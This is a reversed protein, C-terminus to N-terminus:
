KPGTTREAQILCKVASSQCRRNPFCEGNGANDVKILGRGFLPAQEFKFSLNSQPVASGCQPVHGLLPARAGTFPDLAGPMLRTWLKYPGSAFPPCLPSAAMPCDLGRLWSWALWATWGVTTGAPWSGCPPSCRTEPPTGCWRWRSAWGPSCMGWARQLVLTVCVCM